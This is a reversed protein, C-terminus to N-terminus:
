TEYLPVDRLAGGNRAHDLYQKRQDRARIWGSSMHGIVIERLVESNRITKMQMRAVLTFRAVDPEIVVTDFRLFGAPRAKDFYCRVPVNLTPLSFTLLGEHTLNLLRVAEGGRIEKSQQDLPACQNYRPDFDLPPLPWHEKLWKEDYTGALQIRPTWGRGVVGFSAPRPLDGPSSIRDDPYEVNPVHTSVSPDLSRAGKFGVGLPNRMDCAHSAPDPDRRDTGGFAREYVIPMRTFPEPGSPSVGFATRRWYRDGSVLLRKRVDGVEIEVSVERAPKGGPAYAAGNVLVDVYPKEACVDAENLVSSEPSTGTHEDAEKIPSQEEAIAISNEKIDFTARVVLIFVEQAEKDVVTFTGASFPTHNDIITNVAM